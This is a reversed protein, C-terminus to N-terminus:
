STQGEFLGISYRLRVTLFSSELPRILRLGFSRIEILAAVMVITLVLHNM